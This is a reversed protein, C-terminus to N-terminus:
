ISCVDRWTIESDRDPGPGGIECVGKKEGGLQATTARGGAEVEPPREGGSLMCLYDVRPETESTHVM